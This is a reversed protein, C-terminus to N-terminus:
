QRRRSILPITSIFFSTLKKRPPANVGWHGSAIVNLGNKSKESM